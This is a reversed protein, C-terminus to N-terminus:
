GPREIPTMFAVLGRRAPSMRLLKSTLRPILALLGALLAFVVLAIGAPGVFDGGPGPLPGHGDRGGSQSTSAAAARPDATAAGRLSDLPDRSALQLAGGLLAAGTATTSSAGGEGSADVTRGIRSDGRLARDGDASSPPAAGTSSLPPGAPSPLAGVADGITGVPPADRVAGVVSAVPESETLAVAAAGAEAPTRRVTERVPAVGARTQDSLAQVPAAVARATRQLAGDLPTAASASGPGAVAAGLLALAMLRRAKVTQLVRPVAM